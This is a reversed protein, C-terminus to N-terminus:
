EQVWVKPKEGCQRECEDRLAQGAAPRRSPRAIVPRLDLPREADIPIYVSNRIMPRGGIPGSWCSSRPCASGLWGTDLAGWPEASM